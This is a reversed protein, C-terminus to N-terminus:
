DLNRDIPIIFSSFILGVGRKGVGGFKGGICEERDVVSFVMKSEFDKDERRKRRRARKGAAEVAASEGRPEKQKSLKEAM